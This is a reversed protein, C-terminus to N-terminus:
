RLFRPYQGVIYMINSAIIAKNDKGRKQECLGLLEQVLFSFIWVGTQTDTQKRRGQDCHSSVEEWGRWAHCWQYVWYGLMVLFLFVTLLLLLILLSMRFLPKEYQISTKGHGNPVMWKGTFNTQWLRSLTLMTLILSTCQSPSLSLSLTILEVGVCGHISM